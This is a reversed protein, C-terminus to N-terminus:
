DCRIEKSREAFKPSANGGKSSYAVPLLIEGVLKLQVVMRHAHKTACLRIQSLQPVRTPAEAGVLPDFPEKAIRWIKSLMFIYFADCLDAAALLGRVHRDSHSDHCHGAPTSSDLLDGWSYVPVDAPSGM